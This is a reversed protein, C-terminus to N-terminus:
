GTQGVLNETDEKIYKKSFLYFLVVVLIIGIAEFVVETINIKEAGWFYYINYGVRLVFLYITASVIVKNKDRVIYRKRLYNASYMVGLWIALVASVLSIILTLIGSELNLLPFIAFGIVLNVLFPMVFGATLWHTAAIYWDKAEKKEKM